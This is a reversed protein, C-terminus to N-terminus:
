HSRCSCCCGCWWCCSWPEFTWFVVLFASSSRLHVVIEISCCIGYSTCAVACATWNMQQVTPNVFAWAYSDWCRCSAGGSSAGGMTRMKTWYCCFTTSSNLGQPYSSDMVQRHRIRRRRHIHLLKRRSVDVLWTQGTTMMRTSYFCVNIKPFISLCWEKNYWLDIQLIM